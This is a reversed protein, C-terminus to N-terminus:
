WLWLIRTRIELM